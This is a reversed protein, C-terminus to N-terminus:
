LFYRISICNIIQSLLALTITVEYLKNLRKAEMDNRVSQIIEFEIDLLLQGIGELQDFLDKPSHKELSIADLAEVYSFFTNIGPLDTAEPLNRNSTYRIWKLVSLM